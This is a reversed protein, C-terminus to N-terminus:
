GMNGRDNKRSVIKQNNMKRESQKKKGGAKGRKNLHDYVRRESTKGFGAWKKVSRANRGAL